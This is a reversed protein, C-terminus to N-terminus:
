KRKHKLTAEPLVTWVPEGDMFYLEVNSLDDKATIIGADVKMLLKALEFFSKRLSGFVKQKHDLLAKLEEGTVYGRESAEEPLPLSGENKLKWVNMPLSMQSIIYQFSQAVNELDKIINEDTKLGKILIRYIDAWCYQGKSIEKVKGAKIMHNLHKNITARSLGSTKHIETKTMANTAEILTKKLKEHAEIYAQKQWQKQGKKTNM